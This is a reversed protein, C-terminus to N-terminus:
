VEERKYVKKELYALIAAYGLIGGISSLFWWVDAIKGQHKFYQTIIFLALSLIFKRSLYKKM